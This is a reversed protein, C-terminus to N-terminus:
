CHLEESWRVEISPVDHGAVNLPMLLLVLSLPRASMASTRGDASGSWLGCRRSPPSRFPPPTKTWICFAKGTPFAARQRRISLNSADGGAAGEALLPRWTTFHHLSPM